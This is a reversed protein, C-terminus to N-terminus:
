PLLLPLDSVAAAAAGAAATAESCCTPLVPLLLLLQMVLRCRVLLKMLGLLVTLWILDEKNAPNETPPAAALAVVDKCCGTINWRPPDAAVRRSSSVVEVVEAVAEMTVTFFAVALAM